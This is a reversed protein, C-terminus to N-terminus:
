QEIIWTKGFAEVYINATYNAMNSDMGKLYQDAINLLILEVTVGTITYTGNAPLSFTDEGKKSIANGILAKKYFLEIKKLTFIGATYITMDYKTPNQLELDIDVLVKVGNMRINRINKVYIKMQEIVKSFDNKKKLGFLVVLAATGGLLAIKTKTEM